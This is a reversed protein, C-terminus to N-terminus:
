IGWGIESKIEEVNKNGGANWNYNDIGIFLIRM